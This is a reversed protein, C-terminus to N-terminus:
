REGGPISGTREVAKIPPCLVNSYSCFVCCDGPKPRLIANCNVCEFFFQCSDIPMEADQAFGCEPCTLRSKTTFNTTPIQM